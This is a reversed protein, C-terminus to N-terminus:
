RPSRGLADGDALPNVSVLELGLDAVRTLLGHLQAQDVVMGTLDTQGHHCDVDMGTFASAFRPSLEGGIVIRYQGPRVGAEGSAAEVVQLTSVSPHTRRM